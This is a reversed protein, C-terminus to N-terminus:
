RNKVQVDGAWTLLNKNAPPGTIKKTQLLESNPAAPVIPELTVTTNQEDYIDDIPETVNM